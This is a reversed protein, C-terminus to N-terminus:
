QNDTEKKIDKYNPSDEGVLKNLKWKYGEEEYVLFYLGIFKASKVKKKEEFSVSGYVYKINEFGPKSVIKDLKFTSAEESTIKHNNSFWFLINSGEIENGTISSIVFANSVNNIKGSDVTTKSKDLLSTETYSIKFTYNTSLTTKIEGAVNERKADVNLTRKQADFKKGSINISKTFADKVNFGKSGFFNEYSVTEQLGAKKIAEIIKADSFNPSLVLKFDESSNREITEVGWAEDKFILNCKINGSSALLGSDLNMALLIVEKNNELDATRTTIGISKVDEAGLVKQSGEIDISLKKISELFKKEDMAVVPKLETIGELLIKDNMKWQKKGQYIYELSLLTKVEIAGNNLLLAVKVLDNDSNKDKSRSSITFGKMFDKTIKISTGKPLTVVKGILDEKMRVEDVAKVSLVTYAFVGVSIIVLMVIIPIMVKMKKLTTKVSNFFQQKNYKEIDDDTIAPMPMTNKHISEKADEIIIEEEKIIEDKVIGEIFINEEDNHVENYIDEIKIINEIKSGCYPCFKLGNINTFESNCSNCIM